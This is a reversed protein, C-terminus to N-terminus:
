GHTSPNEGCPDGRGSDHDAHDGGTTTAAAASTVAAAHTGAHAATAAIAAPSAAVHVRRGGDGEACRSLGHADVESLRYLEGPRGVVSSGTRRACRARRAAGERTRM